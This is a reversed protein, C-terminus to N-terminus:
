RSPKAVLCTRHARPMQRLAMRNANHICFIMLWAHICNHPTGIIFARGKLKIWYLAARKKSIAGNPRQKHVISFPTGTKSQMQCGTSRRMVALRAGVLRSALMPSNLVVLAEARLSRGTWQSMAASSANGIRRPQETKM